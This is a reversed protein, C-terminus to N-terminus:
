QLDRREFIVGAACLAAIVYALVYVLELVLANADPPTANFDLRQLNPIVHYAGRVLWSLSGLGQRTALALLEGAALGVLWIALGGMAAVTAGTFTSLLLTVALVMWAELVLGVLPLVMSPAPGSTVMAMAGAMMLWAAGANVALLAAVGLYKGVLVEVRRVPRVLITLVTHRDETSGMTRAVMMVCLLANAVSVLAVGADLLARGPQGLSLQDLVLAAGVAAVAFLALNVFVQSRVGERFTAWALARVRRM